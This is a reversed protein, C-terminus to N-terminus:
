GVTALLRLMHHKQTQYQLLKPVGYALHFLSIWRIHKVCELYPQACNNRILFPLDNRHKQLSVNKRKGTQDHMQTPLLGCAMTLAEPHSCVLM